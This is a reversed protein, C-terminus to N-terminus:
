RNIIYRIQTTVDWTGGGSQLTVWASGTFQLAVLANPPLSIISTDQGSSVDQSVSFDTCPVAASIPCSLSGCQSGLCCV